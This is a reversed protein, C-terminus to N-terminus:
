NKYKKILGGAAVVVLILLVVWLLNNEGIGSQPNNAKAPSKSSHNTFIEIELWGIIMM